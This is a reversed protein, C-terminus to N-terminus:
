AGLKKFEIDPSFLGGRLYDIWRERAIALAQKPCCQRDDDGETEIRESLWGDPSIAKSCLVAQLWM